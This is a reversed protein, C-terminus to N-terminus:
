LHPRGGAFLAGVLAGGLAFKQCPQPQPAASAPRLPRSSAPGSAGPSLRRPSDGGNSRGLSASPRCRVPGGHGLAFPELGHRLHEHARRLQSVTLVQRGDAGRATLRWRSRAALKTDSDCGGAARGAPGQGRQARPGPAAAAGPTRPGKARRHRAGVAMRTPSSDIGIQGLQQVAWGDTRNRLAGRGRRALGRAGRRPAQSSTGKRSLGARDRHGQLSHARRMQSGLAGRWAAGERGAKPAAALWGSSSATWSNADIVTM